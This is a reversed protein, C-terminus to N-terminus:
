SLLLDIKILLAHFEIMMLIIDNLINNHFDPITRRGHKFIDSLSLMMIINVHDADVNSSIIIMIIFVFYGHLPIFFRPIIIILIIIVIVM